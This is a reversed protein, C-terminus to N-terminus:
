KKHKKQLILKDYMYILISVGGGAFLPEVGLPAASFIKKAAFWLLTTISSALMLVLVSSSTMKLKPYWTSLIPLLLAAASISGFVKWIDIVSGFFIAILTALFSALILGFRTRKTVISDLFDVNKQNSDNIKAQKTDNKQTKPATNMAIGKPSQSHLHLQHAEDLPFVLPADASKGSFAFMDRGFTTAVTFLNSDLTSMVTALMGIFFLGLIGTPLVTQALTPFALLPTKLDPLLARAYLGCLTTMADFCVWCLISLLMGNRAVAPTKAAFARQFFNPNALTSLAIVYWILIGGISEGGTPSLHKEPLTELPAFGYQTLLITSLMIFGGFMLFCQFYDTKTVASFGGKWLYAVIFVATLLIGAVQSFGFSMSLLTGMILMYAAPISTLFVLIASFLGVKQGYETGLRHPLTLSKSERARRCLLIAFLFAGLYYPVGFVLWNSIGYTFTYEGVGLIGGYFTSVTTAIFAPLTLARGGLLYGAQTKDHTKLFFGVGLTIALFLFILIQDILSM